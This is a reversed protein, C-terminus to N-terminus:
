HEQGLGGRLSGFGRQVYYCGECEWDYGVMQKPRRRGRNGEVKIKM